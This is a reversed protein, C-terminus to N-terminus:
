PYDKLGAHIVLFNGSIDARNTLKNRAVHRTQLGLARNAHLAALDCEQITFSSFRIQIGGHLLLAVLERIRYSLDSAANRKWSVTIRCTFFHIKIRRLRYSFNRPAVRGRNRNKFRPADIIASSSVLRQFIGALLFLDGQIQNKRIKRARKDRPRGLGIAM